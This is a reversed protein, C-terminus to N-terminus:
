LRLRLCTKAAQTLGETRNVIAYRPFPGNTLRRVIHRQMRACHSKIALSSTEISNKQLLVATQLASIYLSVTPLSFLLFTRRRNTVQVFFRLLM